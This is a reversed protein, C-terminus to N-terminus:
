MKLVYTLCTMAVSFDPLEKMTWVKVTKTLQRSPNRRVNTKSDYGTYELTAATEPGDNSASASEGNPVDVNEVEKNAKLQRNLRQPANRKPM